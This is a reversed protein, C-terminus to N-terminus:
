IPSCYPSMSLDAEWNGPNHDIYRNLVELEESNRVVHDYFSKQWKFAIHQRNCCRTVAAKYNSIISSLSDKPSIPQRADSLNQCQDFWRQDADDNDLAILAHIHDPMVVYNLVEVKPHFVHLMSLFAEALSGANFYNM